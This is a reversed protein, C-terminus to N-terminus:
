SLMEYSRQKLRNLGENLSVALLERAESEFKRCFVDIRISPEKKQRRMEAVWEQDTMSGNPESVLSIYSFAADKPSTASAFFEIPKRHLISNRFNSLEKIWIKKRKLTKNIVENIDRLSKVFYKDNFDVINKDYNIEFITNIWLAIGDLSAKCMAIFLYFYTEVVLQSPWHTPADTIQEMKRLTSWAKQHEREILEMAYKMMRFKTISGSLFEVEDRYERKSKVCKYFELVEDFVPIDLHIPVDFSSQASKKLMVYIISREYPPSSNM